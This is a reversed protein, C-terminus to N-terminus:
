RFIIEKVVNDGLAANLKAIIDRKLFLLENRWVATAVRVILKGHEIREAVTVRAIQEGVIEPWIDVAKWQILKKNLGMETLVDGLLDGVPQPNRRKM